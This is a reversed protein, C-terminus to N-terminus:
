PVVFVPQVWARSGDPGFAEARVYLENWRVRYSGASGNTTALLAGGRGYWKIETANTSIVRITDGASTDVGLVRVGTSDVFAGRHIAALVLAESLSPAQVDVSTQGLTSDPGELDITDDGVVGWVRRGASLLRDWTPTASAATPLERALRADFIEIADLSKLALAEESGVAPAAHPHALVSLGAQVHVYDINQQLTAAQPILEVAFDLLHGFPFAAETGAVSVMGPIDFQEVPTLTNIDTISLWEYGLRQYARALDRPLAHGIGRNSQVHLQGRHFLQAQYPSDLYHTRPGRTVAAPKQRLVAIGIALGLLIMAVVFVVGGGDLRRGARHRAEPTLGM